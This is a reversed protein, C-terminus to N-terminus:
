NKILKQYIIGETTHLKLLNFGKVLHNGSIITIEQDSVIETVKRGSIDFVELKILELNGEWEIFVDASTPNPFLKLDLPKLKPQEIQLPNVVIFQGMMGDDEHTLLHCHYMYPVNPNAFGEFKTIFRVTEQPRVLVVDKRGQENPPPPNGNRTLIYFPVMHIHFPHSIATNNTLTWIEINNLPIEYNIMHMDFLANNIFFRGNLQNPGPSEPTFVLTRHETASSEAFPTLTVLGTPITTVANPTQPLITL